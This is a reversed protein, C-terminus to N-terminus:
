LPCSLASVPVDSIDAYAFALERLRHQNDATRAARTLRAVAAKMIQNLPTNTTLVDYRSAVRSPDVALVTFQRTVDLRGRLAPLDDAHSIYQRPM